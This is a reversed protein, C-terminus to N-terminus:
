KERKEPPKHPKEEYQIVSIQGDSEINVLKASYNARIAIKRVECVAAL